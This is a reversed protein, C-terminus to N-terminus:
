RNGLSQEIKTAVFDAEGVRDARRRWTRDSVRQACRLRRYGDIPQCQMEVICGSCRQCVDVFGEVDANAGEVRRNSSQASARECWPRGAIKGRLSQDSMQVCESKAGANVKGRDRRCQVNNSGRDAARARRPMIPKQTTMAITTTAIM